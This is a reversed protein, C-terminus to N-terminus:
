VRYTTYSLITLLKSVSQPMISPGSSQPVSLNSTARLCASTLPYAEKTLRLAM